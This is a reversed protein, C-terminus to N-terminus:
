IHILSLSIEKTDGVTDDASTKSSPATKDPEEEASKSSAKAAKQAAKRTKQAAQAPQQNGTKSEAAVASESNQAVALGSLALVLCFAFSIRNYM